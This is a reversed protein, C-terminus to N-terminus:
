SRAEVLPMLVGGRLSLEIRAKQLINLAANEDRDLSLGCFPCNHIRVVLSKKVIEGCSSCKQSTGAPSIEIYEKGANEAKYKLINLVM